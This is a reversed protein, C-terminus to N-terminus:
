EANGQIANKIKQYLFFSDWLFYAFFPSFFEVQLMQVAAAVPAM